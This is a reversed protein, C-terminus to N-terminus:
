KLLKDKEETVSKLQIVLPQTEGLLLDVKGKRISELVSEAELLREQLEEYTPKNRKM